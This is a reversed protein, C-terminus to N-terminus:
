RYLRSWFQVEDLLHVMETGVTGRHLRKIQVVLDKVLLVLNLQKGM